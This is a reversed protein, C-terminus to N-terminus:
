ESHSLKSKFLVSSVDVVKARGLANVIKLSEEYHASRKEIKDIKASRVIGIKSIGIANLRSKNRSDAEFFAIVTFIIHIKASKKCFM